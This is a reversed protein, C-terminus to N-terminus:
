SVRKITLYAYYTRATNGGSSSAFQWTIDGSLSALQAGTIPYTLKAWNRQDTGGDKPEVRMEEKFDAGNVQIKGRYDNAASSYNWFISAEIEYNAAGGIDEVTYNLTSYTQFTTTNNSQLGEQLNSNFSSGYLSEFGVTIGNEDTLKPNGNTDIWIKCRGVTPSDPDSARKPFNITGDSM